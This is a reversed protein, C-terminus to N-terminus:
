NDFWPGLDVMDGTVDPALPDEDSINFDGGLVAGWQANNFFVGLTRLDSITDRKKAPHGYYVGVLLRSKSVVDEFLVLQWNHQKAALALALCDDGDSSMVPNWPYKYLIATGGSRGAMGLRVDQQIPRGWHVRWTM